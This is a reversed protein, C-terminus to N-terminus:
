LKTDFVDEPMCQCSYPRENKYKKNTQLTFVCTKKKALLLYEHETILLEHRKPHAATGGIGFMAARLVLCLCLTHWIGDVNVSCCPWYEELFCGVNLLFIKKSVRPLCKKLFFLYLLPIIHFRAFKKRRDREREKKKRIKQHIILLYVREYHETSSSFFIIIIIFVRIFFFLMKETWGFFNQEDICVCVCIYVACAHLGLSQFFFAFENLFRIFLFLIFFFVFRLSNARSRDFGVEAQVDESLVNVHTLGSM